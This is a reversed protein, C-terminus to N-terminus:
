MRFSEMCGTGTPTGPSSYRAPSWSARPYRFSSSSVLSRNISVSGFPGIGSSRSYLVPSKHWHLFSPSISNRPRTSWCTFIRPKRISSSSISDVSSDISPTSPAATATTSPIPTWFTSTPYTTLRSSATVLSAARAYRACRSGLYM